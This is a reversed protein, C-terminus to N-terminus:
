VAFVEVEDFHLERSHEGTLFTNEAFDPLHYTGSGFSYNGFKMSRTNGIYLDCGQGFAPGYGPAHFLAYYHQNSRLNMTFPPLGAHCKISFLFADNSSGYTNTSTFSKDSYGGIVYGEKTRAITVTAGNNDCKSHFDHHTWGDRSARYLLQPEASPRNAEGLWSQIQASEKLDVIKSNFIQADGLIVDENGPFYHAVLQRLMPAEKDSYDKCYYEMEPNLMARLRLQNLMKCFTSIPQEILVADKGNDLKMTQAKIWEDDSFQKALISEKHFCLTSRRVTMVEGALYLNLISNADERKLSPASNKGSSSTKAATSTTHLEDDIMTFDDDNNFNDGDDSDSTRTIFFKVYTEEGMYRECKDLDSELKVLAKQEKEICDFLKEYVSSKNEEESKVKTMNGGVHL